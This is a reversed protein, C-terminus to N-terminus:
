VSGVMIRFNKLSVMAWASDLNGALLSIEPLPTANMYNRIYLVTGKNCARNEDTIVSMNSLTLKEKATSETEQVALIDLRKEDCYHDLAFQSRSSMGCISSRWEIVTQTTCM